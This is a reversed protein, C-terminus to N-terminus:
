ILVQFPARFVSAKAAAIINVTSKALTTPKLDKATVLKSISTLESNLIVKIIIARAILVIKSNKIYIFLSASVKIISVTVELMKNVKLIGSNM